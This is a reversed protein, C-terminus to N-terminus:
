EVEDGDREPDEAADDELEVEVELEEELESRSADETESGCKLVLKSDSALPLDCSTGLSSTAAIGGGTVVTDGVDVLLRSEGDEDCSADLLGFGELEVDVTWDGANCDAKVSWLAAAALEPASAAALLGLVLCLLASRLM